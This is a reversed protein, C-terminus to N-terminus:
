TSKLGMLEFVRAESQVSSMWKEMLMKELNGSLNKVDFPPSSTKGAAVLNMLTEDKRHLRLVRVMSAMSEESSQSLTEAYSIWTSFVPSSFLKGAEDGLKLLKFVDEVTKHKELWNALQAKELNSATAALGEVEKAAALMKALVGDGVHAAQTTAMVMDAREPRKKTLSD